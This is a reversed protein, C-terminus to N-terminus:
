SRLFELFKFILRPQFCLSGSGSATFSDFDFSLSVEALSKKRVEPDYTCTSLRIKNVSAMMNVKSYAMVM